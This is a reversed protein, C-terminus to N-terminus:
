LGLQRAKYFEYSLGDLGPAKNNVCNKIILDLECIDIDEDLLNSDAEDMKQLHQLFEPLCSNNLQFSRGTDMLSTNHHGNLLAEFFRIVEKEIENENESINGSINLSTIRKNSNNVEKAAHFLSAREEEANQQFRSCVVLGMADERLMNNLKEKVM